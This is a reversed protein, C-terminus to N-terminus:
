NNRVGYEEGKFLSLVKLKYYGNVKEIYNYKMLTLLLNSLNIPENLISLKEELQRYKLKNDSLFHLILAMLFHDKQVISKQFSIMLAKTIKGIQLTVKELNVEELIIFRSFLRKVDKNSRLGYYQTFLKGVDKEIKSALIETIYISDDFVKSFKNKATQIVNRDSSITITETNERWLQSSRKFGLNMKNLNISSVAVVNDTIILKAHLNSGSTKVLIDSAILSRFMNKIRDSFDMSTSGTLIRIDLGQLKNRILSKMIDQDTFSETSIYLFEKANDIVSLLIDRGRVDFPCVYLGDSFDIIGPCIEIPYDKIWYNKHIDLQIVAPIEFLSLPDAYVSEMVMSRLKGDYGLTSTVFLDLLQDYKVNFERIKEKDRKYILIADLEEQDTFNASLSIATRDTVIFKGHFSYWRGIATTTREPDGINWRCFSVIAGNQRLQEFQQTVRERVDENISDYPLTFIEVRVDNLLKENLIDFIEKNHLQFIAIRIYENANILEEKVKKIVNFSFDFDVM